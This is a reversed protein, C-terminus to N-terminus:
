IGDTEEETHVAMEFKMAQSKGTSVAMDALTNVDSIFGRGMSTEILMGLNTGSLVIINEESRFLM